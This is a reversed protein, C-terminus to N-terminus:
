KRLKRFDGDRVTFGTADFHELLAQAYKRSTNFLDRVEALTIKGNREMTQRIKMKMSDYDTKRFIVDVSVAILDDLEILARLIEGGVESECERAGPPSFPNQDFRRMLAEVRARDRGDFKIAHGAKAVFSGADTVSGDAVLYKIAANFVRASPKLKSKLEERPIGRRLPFNAHYEEVSHLIADRLSNWHTAPAVLSDSEITIAGDELAILSKSGTLERLASEAQISDLRSRAVVERIPAMGLAMAAELFIDAPSGQMLSELSRVVEEDFRRHRGKPQHDVIVGGGLTEGPSPRRVIYRDGRVAVVPERVEFQV